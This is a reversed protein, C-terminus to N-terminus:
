RGPGPPVPEHGNRRRGYPVSSVTVTAGAAARPFRASRWRRTPGSSRTLCLRQPRGDWGVQPEAPVLAYGMRSLISVIDDDSGAWVDIRSTRIRRFRAELSRLLASKLRRDLEAEGLFSAVLRIRGVRAGPERTLQGLAAAIIEEGAVVVSVIGQGRMLAILQSLTPFRGGLTTAGSRALERLERPLLPRIEM